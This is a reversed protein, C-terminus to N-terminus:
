RRRGLGGAGLAVVCALVGLVLLLSTLPRHRVAVVCRAAGALPWLAARALVRAGPREEIWSSATPSARYYAEIATRGGPLAALVEDRFQRLWRVAPHDYDGFAATAVFCFGGDDGGGAKKYVEWFDDVEQPTECVIEGIVSKNGFEDEAVVSLMYPQNNELGRLEYSRTSSGLRGSCNYAEDFEAGASFGGPPCGEPTSGDTSGSDTGPDVGSDVGGDVGGDVTDAPADWADSEDMVDEDAVDELDSATDTATDVGPDTSTDAGTDPAPEATDPLSMGEGWCMVYFHDWEEPFDPEAVDWRITVMSEGYGARIDVPPQPAETDYNVTTQAYYVVTQDSDDALILFWVDTAGEGEVCSPTESMPDVVWAPYVAMNMLSELPLNEYAAFCRGEDRNEKENCASGLYVYLDGAGLSGTYSLRYTFFCDGECEEMNVGDSEEDRETTSCERSWFQASFQAHAQTAATMAMLFLFAKLTSKM